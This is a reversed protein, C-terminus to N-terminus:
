QMIAVDNSILKISTSNRLSRKIKTAKLLETIRTANQVCQM